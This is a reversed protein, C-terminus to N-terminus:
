RVFYNAIDSLRKYTPSDTLDRKDGRTVCLRIEGTMGGGILELEEFVKLALRLQYLSAGEVSGRVVDLLTATDPFRRGSLPYLAKYYEGM